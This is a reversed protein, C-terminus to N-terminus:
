HELGLEIRESVDVVVFSGVLADSSDGWGVPPVLCGGGGWAFGDWVGSEGFWGDLVDGDAFCAVDCGVAGENDAESGGVGALCCCEDDVLVVGRDVDVVLEDSVEGEVSGASVLGGM